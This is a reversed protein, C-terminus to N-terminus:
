HNSSQEGTKVAGQAACQGQLWPLVKAAWLAGHERLGAGSFHVGKGNNERLQGKL